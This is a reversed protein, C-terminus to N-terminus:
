LATTDSSLEVAAVQMARELVAARDKVMEGPKSELMKTSLNSSGDKPDVKIM